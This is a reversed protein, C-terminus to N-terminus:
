LSDPDGGTKEAERYASLDCPAIDGDPLRVSGPVFLFAHEVPIRQHDDSSRFDVDVGQANQIIAGARMVLGTNVDRLWDGVDVSDGYKDDGLLRKITM